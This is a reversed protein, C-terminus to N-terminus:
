STDIRIAVLPATPRYRPHCGAEFTEIVIMRGGCCPCPHPLVQAAAPDIEIAGEAVPPALGLLERARAITEARKGSAFLGYHRIRHFGTPLVHLLFRRIFEDVALTMTTSRGPGEIRYDKVKFTVSEEDVAILRRNSIAVRHTYRALYALVAKPGAFPRKAYVFWRKRRLPALFAAFAKADALYALSGFFQLRGALHAALLKELMLRRFLKSLVLVPLFFDPKCSIWRSGDMSLGGGPVITHVHPHHTMASGCSHLVSTIGIRAGLHEPDAAITLMTESSAKFLLDYIVAKNQYAIDGIASPLTFVVHFYAIPLLEAERAAMWQRAAAGQCKPCHRNRCSNYAITTHACDECRAVHGGLAATRCTEIASMVKLQDHRVHGCNAHRGTAGHDRFIDAVELAPWAM